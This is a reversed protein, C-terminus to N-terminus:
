NCTSFIYHLLSPYIHTISSYPIYKSFQTSNVLTSISNQSILPNKGNLFLLYTLDFTRCKGTKLIKAKPHQSTQQTKTIFILIVLMSTCLVALKLFLNNSFLLFLSLSLVSGQPVGVNIPHCFLARRFVM